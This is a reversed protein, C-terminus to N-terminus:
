EILCMRLERKLHNFEEELFSKIFINALISKSKVYNLKINGRAVHDRIFLYKAEIYKIRSNHVPNKTLNITSLNDFLVQVNKYSFTYDELIHTIWLLQAVCERTTIYEAETLSFAIYHQKRSTQSVLFSSLFQCGGRTSKQDLKCKAYDSDSYGVLDFTEM